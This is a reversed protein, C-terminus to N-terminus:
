DLWVSLDRDILDQLRLVDDRYLEKLHRRVDDDFTPVERTHRWVAAKLKQRSSAPLIRLAATAGRSKMATEVFPFRAPQQAVNHKALNPRVSPDVELFTYLDEVLAGTDEALDGFLYVRVQSRGFLELYRSVHQAYMGSKVFHLWESSGDLEAEVAERFTLPKKMGYV